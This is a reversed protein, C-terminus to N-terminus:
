DDRQLADTCFSTTYWVVASNDPFDGTTALLTTRPESTSPTASSAVSTVGYGEHPNAPLRGLYRGSTTCWFDVGNSGPPSAPGPPKSPSVPVMVVANSYFAGYVFPGPATLFELATHGIFPQKLSPKHSPPLEPLVSLLELATEPEEDESPIHLTLTCDPDSVSCLRPGSELPICLLQEGAPSFAAHALPIDNAGRYTRLPSVNTSDWFRLYGDLSASVILTDDQSIELSTIPADHARVDTVTGFKRTDWQRIMEDYGGTLFYQGTFHPSCVCTAANYLSDLAGDDEDDPPEQHHMFRAVVGQTEIKEVNVTATQVPLHHVSTCVVDGESAVTYIYRDSCDWCVDHIAGTHLRASATCTVSELDVIRLQGDAGVTALLRGDHSFRAKLIADHHGSAKFVPAAKIKISSM